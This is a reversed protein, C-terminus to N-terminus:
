CRRRKKEKAQAEREQQQAIAGVRQLNRSLVAMAAYREFGDICHDPCRDLDHVELANIASEVASHKRRAEAFEPERERAQDKTRRSGKKPMVVKKLKCVILSTDGCPARIKSPASKSLFSWNDVYLRFLFLRIQHHAIQHFAWIFSM